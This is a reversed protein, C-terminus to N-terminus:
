LKDVFKKPINITDGIKTDKWLRANIYQKATTPTGHRARFSARTKEDRAKGTRVGKQGGTVTRTVTKGGKKFTIKAQWSKGKQSARQIKVKPM